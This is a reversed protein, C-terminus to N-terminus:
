LPIDDEVGAPEERREAKPSLFEIRDAYVLMKSRKGGEKAEWTEQRLTGEILVKAGKVLGEAVDATKGFCKVDLWLTEDKGARVGISFTVVAGRREASRGLNGTHFTKNM